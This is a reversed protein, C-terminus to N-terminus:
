ELQHNRGEINEERGRGYRVGAPIGEGRWLSTPFISYIGVPLDPVNFNSEPPTTTEKVPYLLCGVARWTGFSFGLRHSRSCPSLSWETEFAITKPM